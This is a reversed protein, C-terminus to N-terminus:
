LEFHKLGMAYLMSQNKLTNSKSFLRLGAKRLIKFIIHKNSFLANLNHTASVLVNKDIFRKQSYIEKMKLSNLDLGVNKFDSILNSLNESDRLGLNFGQGAIPHIAQSADGILVINNKFNEYCSFVNLNYQKVPSSSLIRGFFNNYHTKFEKMFKSPSTLDKSKKEDLTWVVSTKGQRRDKMPLLALPGTSFFREVAIGYHPKTHSINFVYAKQKYDHFFFKTNSFKRIKSFRGDAAVLLKYFFKGRNTCIFSSSPNSNHIEKVETNDHFHIFKSNKMHKYLTNKLIANDIIYGLAEENVNRPNFEIDSHGHGEAVFIQSIPQSYKKLDEWLGLNEFIKSSGQSIATTRSDINNQIQNKNNKDIICVKIKMKAMLLAFTMGILGAGCILIENKKKLM